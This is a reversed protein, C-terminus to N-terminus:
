PRAMMSAAANAHGMDTTMQCVGSDTCRVLPFDSSLGPVRVEREPKLATLWPAGELNFMSIIMVKVPIREDARGPAAAGCGLLLLMASVMLRALSHKAM